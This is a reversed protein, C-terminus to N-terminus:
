FPLDLKPVIGQLQQRFIDKIHELEQETEAEFRLVLVPTTNSARILGWGKAYDVRIGDITTVKGDGWAGNKQLTEILRFKSDETVPINIEPTSIDCPFARFVHEADRYDQSLIELLRAASYLGDDFGFWREQFFIHGSMEGALLANTEKMKKKILSHGTKWMLPRGGYGSIMANLRRSCKVDFIVTAGPNRGIVDKAFVMLLHDSFIMTGTNTVVGLRDGDGDFALGIDAQEAKVREILDKLNEPKSPDPHHNPFNGDVQTYLPIITCGLSELLQPAITGAVGNGCDVVVRMPKSLRIDDHLYKFYSPLVNEEKISGIGSNLRNEDIRAKLAQIQENALTDGAIIIKFGNYEPPNHSGTIMVASRADLVHTAYYVVPTPVMGIDIVQCGCDILGKILHQRLEPGSLRGDYGVVVSAEGKAFSESGIARGIWYAYESTLSQGVVGRIDYARFIDTPLEPIKEPTHQETLIPPVVVETVLPEEELIDIDLVDVARFTPKKKTTSAVKGPQPTEPTQPVADRAPKLSLQSLQQALNKLAPLHMRINVNKISRGVSLEMVLQELRAIDKDLRRQQMNQAILLGIAAGTLSLLAALIIWALPLAVAHLAKGPTFRLFWNPNQTAQSLTDGNGHGRQLLVQDRANATQFRQVLQMQGLEDPLKPLFNLIHQLDVVLMVTGIASKQDGPHVAAVSYLLWRGGARYAEAAPQQGNEARRLMDLGTFNLPGPRTNDQVAQGRLNLHIDTVSGWQSLQQETAQILVPDQSHLARIVTPNSALARTDSSLQELSQAVITTQSQILVQAQRTLLDQNVSYQAGWLLIASLVAGGLAGLLGIIFQSSIQLQSPKQDSKATKKTPVKKTSTKARKM